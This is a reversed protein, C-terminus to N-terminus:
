SADFNASPLVVRTSRQLQLCLLKSPKSFMSVSYCYHPKSKPIALFAVIGVANRHARRVNNFVNGPSIYVPYFQTQGTGVSAVTKDNGLILPVFMAGEMERDKCIMDQMVYFQDTLDCICLFIHTGSTALM